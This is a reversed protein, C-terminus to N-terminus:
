ACLVDEVASSAQVVCQCLAWIQLATRMFALAQGQMTSEVCSRHAPPARGRKTKKRNIAMRQQGVNRGSMGGGVKWGVWGVYACAHCWWRVLCGCGVVLHYGQENTTHGDRM